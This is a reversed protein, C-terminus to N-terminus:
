NGNGDGIEADVAPAPHVELEMNVDFLLQSPMKASLIIATRLLTDLDPSVRLYLYYDGSYDTASLTPEVLWVDDTGTEQKPSIVSWGLGAFEMETPYATNSIAYEFVLHSTNAENELSNLNNLEVTSNKFFDEGNQDFGSVGAVSTRLALVTGHEAGNVDFRFYVQNDETIAVLNDIAGLHMARIDYKYTTDDSGPKKLISELYAREDDREGSTADYQQWGPNGEEETNYVWMHVPIPKTTGTDLSVPQETEYYTSLWAYSAGVFVSLSLLLLLLSGWIRNKPFGRSKM